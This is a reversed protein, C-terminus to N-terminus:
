SAVLKELNSRVQAEPLHSPSQAVVTGDSGIFVWAGRFTVGFHRWLVGSEDVAHIMTSPWGFDEVAQEMAGASDQGPSTVFQIQGEFERAFQAVM